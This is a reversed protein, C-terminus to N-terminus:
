SRRPVSPSNPEERARNRPLSDRSLACCVISGPVDNPEVPVGHLSEESCWPHPAHRCKLTASAHCFEFSSDIREKPFQLFHFSPLLAAPGIAVRGFRRIVSGFASAAICRCALSYSATHRPRTDGRPMSGSRTRTEVAFIDKACRLVNLARTSHFCEIWDPSPLSDDGGVQGEGSGFFDRNRTHFKRRCPGPPHM